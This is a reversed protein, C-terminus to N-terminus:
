PRGEQSRCVCDYLCQCRHSAEPPRPDAGHVNVRQRARFIQEGIHAPTRGEVLRGAYLGWWCRTYRGFWVQVGPFNRELVAIEREWAAADEFPAARM